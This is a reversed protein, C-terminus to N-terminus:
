RIRPSRGSSTSRSSHSSCPFAVGAVFVQRRPGRCPVLSCLSRRLNGLRKGLSRNRELFGSMTGRCHVRPELRRQGGAPRAARNTPWVHALTGAPWRSAYRRSESGRAQVTAHDAPAFVWERDHLHLIASAPVSAHTVTNRSLLTATVFMGLRLIGPNAVEIRVKATRITPDM